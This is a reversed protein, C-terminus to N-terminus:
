WYNYAKIIISRADKVILFDVVYDKKILLVFLVHLGASTAVEQLYLCVLFQLLLLLLLPCCPCSVFYVFVKNICFANYLDHRLQVIFSPSQKIQLITHWIINQAVSIM